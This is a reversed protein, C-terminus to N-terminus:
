FGIGHHVHLSLEGKEVEDGREILKWRDEGSKTVKAPKVLEYHERGTTKVENLEFFRKLSGDYQAHPKKDLIDDKVMLVAGKQGEAVYYMESSHTKKVSYGESSTVDIRRIIRGIMEEAIEEPTKKLQELTEKGRIEIEGAQSVCFDEMDIFHSEIIDERKRDEEKSFGGIHKGFFVIKYKGKKLSYNLAVDCEGKIFDSKRSVDMRWTKPEGPKVNEFIRGFGCFGGGEEDIAIAYDYNPYEGEIKGTISIFKKSGEEIINPEISIIEAKGIESPKNTIEIDVTTYDVFPYEKLMKERNELRPPLYEKKGKEADRVYDILNRRPYAFCALKYKGKPLVIYVGYQFGSIFFPSSTVKQNPAVFDFPNTASPRNPVPKAFIGGKKEENDDYIGINFTYEKNIDQGQFEVEATIVERVGEPLSFGPRPKYIKVKSEKVETRREMIGAPKKTSEKAEIKEGEPKIPTEEKLIKREIKEIERVEIGYSRLVNVVDGTYGFKSAERLEKMFRALSEGGDRRAIEVLDQLYSKVIELDAHKVFSAIGNLFNMSNTLDKKEKGERYFQAVAEIFFRQELLKMREQEDSNKGM